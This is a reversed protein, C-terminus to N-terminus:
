VEDSDFSVFRLRACCPKKNQRKTGGRAICVAPQTQMASVAETKKSRERASDTCIRRVCGEYPSIGVDARSIARIRRLNGYIRGARGPRHLCRGRRGEACTLVHVVRVAQTPASAWMLGFFPASEGCIETFGAQEAPVIYADDGVAKGRLDACPCRTGGARFRRMCFGPM